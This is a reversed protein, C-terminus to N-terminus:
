EQMTKYGDHLMLSDSGCRIRLTHPGGAQPTEVRILWRGDPGTETTCPKGSWSPVVVVKQSPSAWGWLNVRSSHQLVMNDGLIAPLRIQSFGSGAFLLCVLLLHSKKM